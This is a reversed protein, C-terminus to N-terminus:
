GYQWLQVSRCQRDDTAYMLWDHKLSMQKLILRGADTDVYSLKSGAVGGHETIPQCDVRSVPKSLLDSLTDPALMEEISDFLTYKAELKKM